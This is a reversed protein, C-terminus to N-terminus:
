ELPLSVFNESIYCNVDFNISMGSEKTPLIEIKGGLQEVLGQAISLELDSDNYVGIGTDEILFRIKNYSGVHYGFFIHGRDTLKVVNDLLCRFIQLLLKRNACISLKEVDTYKLLEVNIHSKGKKQLEKKVYDFLEDLLEDICFTEEIKINDKM